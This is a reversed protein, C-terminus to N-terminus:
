GGLLRAIPIAASTVAMADPGVVSAVQLAPKPLPLRGPHDLRGLDVRALLAEYIPRPFIGGVVIATPNFLQVVISLPGSIQDGRAEIWECLRKDRDTLLVALRAEDLADPTTGLHSALDLVTPRPRSVPSM